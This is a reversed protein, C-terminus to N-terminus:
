KTKPKPPIPKGGIIRGNPNSNRSFDGHKIVGGKQSHGSQQPGKKNSNSM